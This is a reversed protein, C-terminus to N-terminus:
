GNFLEDKEWNMPNSIIYERIRNLDDEDRIIHEYYNRQWFRKEFPQWQNNKVGLVYRYTTISKFGGVIEGINLQTGVLPM